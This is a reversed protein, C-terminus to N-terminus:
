FKEWHILFHVTHLLYFLRQFIKMQSNSNSVYSFQSKKRKQNLKKHYKKRTKSVTESIHM